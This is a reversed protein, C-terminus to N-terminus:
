PIKNPNMPSSKWNSAAMKFAEKHDIYPNERKIMMIEGKMFANYPSGGWKLEEETTRGIFQTLDVFTWVDMHSYVFLNQLVAIAMTTPWRDILDRIEQRVGMRPRLHVAHTRYIYNSPIPRPQDVYTGRVMLLEILAANDSFCALTFPSCAYEQRNIIAYVVANPDAGADLLLESAREVAYMVSEWSPFDPDKPVFYSKKVLALTHLPSFGDTNTLNTNAGHDILLEVIEIMSNMNEQCVDELEFISCAINLPTYGHEDVENIPNGCKLLAVVAEKDCNRCASHLGKESIYNASVDDTSDFSSLPYSTWILRFEENKAIAINITSLTIRDSRKEKSLAHAHRHAHRNAGEEAGSDSDGDGNSENGHDVAAAMLANGSIKLLEFSLYQLSAALFVAAEQNFLHLYSEIPFCIRALEDASIPASSGGGGNRLQLIATNLIAVAKEGETVSKTGLSGTFIQTVTKQVTSVTLLAGPAPQLKLATDTFRTSLSDILSSLLRMASKSISVEPHAKRLISFMISEIEIQSDSIMNDDVDEWVTDDVDGDRDDGDGNRHTDGDGYEDDGDRAAKSEAVPPGANVDSPPEGKQAGQKTESM